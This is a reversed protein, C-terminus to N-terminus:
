PRHLATLEAEKAAGDPSGRLLYPPHRAAMLRTRALAMAVRSTDITIWRRGWQEAVAATTGSGCTPDLVLDGPNTTMLICRELVKVVTQVAYIKEDGFANSRTDMWHATIAQLRGSDRYSKWWINNGQQHLMGASLVRPLGRDVSTSWGRSGRPVFSRGFAFFPERSKDNGSQSTPNELKLVRGKPTEQRGEKQAKSLDIVQGDPTEICVYREEPDDIAPTLKYLQHFSSPDNGKRYWLLYDTIQALLASTQGTTASYSILGAYQVAGFVEDMLNRVLHLNADSIQVFISGTPSM